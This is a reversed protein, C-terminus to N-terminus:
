GETDSGDRRAHQAALFDALTEARKAKRELGLLQGSARVDGSAKFWVTLARQARDSTMSVRTRALYAAATTRIQSAEVFGVIVEREIASIADEGGRDAVLAQYLPSNRATELTLPRSRGGNTRALSNRLGVRGRSDRKADRDLADGPGDPATEVPTQPESM